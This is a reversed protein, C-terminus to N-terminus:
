PACRLGPENPKPVRLEVGLALEIAICTKNRRVLKLSSRHVFPAEITYPIPFDREFWCYLPGLNYSTSAGSLILEADIVDGTRASPHVWMRKLVWDRNRLEEPLVSLGSTFRGMDFVSADPADWTSHRVITYYADPYTM